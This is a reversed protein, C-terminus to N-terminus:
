KSILVDFSVALKEWSLTITGKTDTVEKVEFLLEEQVHDLPQPTVSLRVVDDKINYDDALHQQHNKNLIVIWKEKGPITFLAYTGKAITVGGVVVNETFSVSTAKHAGTVWVQDYPVLGGWIVRGKVRPSSYEIHVHMKGVNSMAMEHPSAPKKATADEKATHHEHQSYGWLSIFMLSLSLTIAKKM